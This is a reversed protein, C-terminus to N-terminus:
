GMERAKICYDYLVNDAEVQFGECIDPDVVVRVGQPYARGLGAPSVRLSVPGPEGEAATRLADYFNVCDFRSNTQAYEELFAQNEQPLVQRLLELQEEGPLTSLQCVTEYSLQELLRGAPGGTEERRPLTSLVEEPAFAFSSRIKHYLEGLGSDRYSAVSIREATRLFSSPPLGVAAAQAPAEQPKPEEAPIEEKRRQVEAELERLQRSKDELLDDYASILGISRERISQGVVKAAWLISLTVVGILLGIVAAAGIYAYLM